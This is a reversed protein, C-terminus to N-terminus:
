VMQEEYLPVGYKELVNFIGNLNAGEVVEEATDKLAKDVDEEVDEEVVDAM